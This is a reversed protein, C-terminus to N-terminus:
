SARDVFLGAPASPAQPRGTRCQLDGVDLAAEALSAELMPLDDRLAQASEKREALLLSM